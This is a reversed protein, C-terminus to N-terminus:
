IENNSYFNGYFKLFYFNSLRTNIISNYQIFENPSHAFGGIGLGGVIFSIELEKQIKSLPAAAASLPWIETPIHLAEFSKVLSKVLISDRNVRSGEYGINKILKINSKSRKRFLDVKEKIDEYIEDISVNHAFRIDINCTAHNPHLCRNALM